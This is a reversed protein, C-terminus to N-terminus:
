ILTVNLFIGSQSNRGAAQIKLVRIVTLSVLNRIDSATHGRRPDFDSRNKIRKSKRKLQMTFGGLKWSIRAKRDFSMVFFRVLVPMSDSWFRVAKCRSTTRRASPNGDTFDADDATFLREAIENRAWPILRQNRPTRAPSAVRIFACDLTLIGRLIRAKLGLVSCVLLYIGERQSAMRECRSRMWRSRNM